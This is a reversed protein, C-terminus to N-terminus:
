GQGLYTFAPRKIQEDEKFTVTYAYRGASTACTRQVEADLGFMM